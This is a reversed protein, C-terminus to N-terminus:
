FKKWDSFEFFKRLVLLLMNLALHVFELYSDFQGKTTVVVDVFDVVVVVVVVCIVVVVVSLVVAVGPKTM